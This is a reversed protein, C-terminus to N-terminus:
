KKKKASELLAALFVPIVKDATEGGAVSREIAFGNWLASLGIAMARLPVKPVLGQGTFLADLAQALEAHWQKRNRDYEKKFAPNHSAYVDFELSLSSLIKNKQLQRLWAATKRLVEAEAGSATTAVVERLVGFAQQTQRTLVELLLEDKSKFNSYFAGLTYGAADCIQRISADSIGVRVIEREAADILRQRTVQQSEQRSLRPM